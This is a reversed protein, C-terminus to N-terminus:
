GGWLWAETGRWGLRVNYVTDKTGHYLLSRAGRLFSVPPIVGAAAAARALSVLKAVQTYGVYQTTKCHDYSVTANPSCGICPGPATNNLHGCGPSSSSRACTTEPEGDFKTVACRIARPRRCCPM